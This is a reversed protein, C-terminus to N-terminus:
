VRLNGLFSAMNTARLGPLAPDACRWGPDGLHVVAIGTPALQWANPQLTLPADSMRAPGPRRQWPPM